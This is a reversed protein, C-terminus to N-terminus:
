RSVNPGMAASEGSRTMATRPKPRAAGWKHISLMNGQDQYTNVGRSLPKDADKPTLPGHITYKLPKMCEITTPERKARASRPTAPKAHSVALAIKQTANKTESTPEKSGLIEM